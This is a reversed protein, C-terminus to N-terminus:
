FNELKLAADEASIIKQADKKEKNHRLRFINLLHQRYDKQKRNVDGSALCDRFYEAIIEKVKEKGYDSIRMLSEIFIESNKTENVIEGFNQTTKVDIGNERKELIEIVFEINNIITNYNNTILRKIRGPLTTPLPLYLPESQPVITTDTTTRNLVVLSITPAKYNNVGKEYNILKWEQLDGLAKYYTNKNGIGAGAMALDFPCKFSKAWFNRNNQHLLFNYLSIHYSKVKDQNDFVWSFFLDTQEFYNIRARGM